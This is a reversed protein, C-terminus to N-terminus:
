IHLLVYKILKILIVALIPSIDIGGLRSPPVVRRLPRLVPETLKHLLQVIPNHPNPQVWSILARVIIIWSYITLLAWIIGILGVALLYRM